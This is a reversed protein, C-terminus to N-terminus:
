KRVCKRRVEEVARSLAKAPFIHLTDSSYEDFIEEPRSCDISVVDAMVANLIIELARWVTVGSYERMYKPALLAGRNETLVVYGRRRGAVLCIAEPLDISPLQPKLRSEEVLARAEEVENRSPTYLALRDRSLGEAIWAVTQESRVENLVDEPVFVTRFLKFLVNRRRFRAWDILFCTDAIAISSRSM